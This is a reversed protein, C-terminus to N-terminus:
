VFRASDLREELSALSQRILHRKGRAHIAAYYDEAEIWDIEGIDLVLEGAATPVLLRAPGQGSDHGGRPHVGEISRGGAALLAAFQTALALADASRFRERARELAAAFRRESVPKVLYDLAHTEFARVAFEDYATVFIVAPMRT